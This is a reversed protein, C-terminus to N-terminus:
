RAHHETTKEALVLIQFMKKKLYTGTCRTRVREVSLKKRQRNTPFQHILKKKVKKKLVPIANIVQLIM